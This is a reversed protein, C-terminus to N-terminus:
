PQRRLVELRLKRWRPQWGTSFQGGGMYKGLLQQPSQARNGPDGGSGGDGMGIYLYGDPGFSLDGGKHNSFPQPIDLLILETNANVTNGSPALSTFRSIHTNGTALDVYNVYFHGNTGYDPHFALGLMGQEGSNLVQTSIDLYNGPVLTSTALDYVRIRGGKDVIFLRDSGDGAGTIDVPQQVTTLSDLVIDPQSFGSQSCLVALTFCLLLRLSQM